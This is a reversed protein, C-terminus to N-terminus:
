GFGELPRISQENNLGTVDSIQSGTVPQPGIVTGSSVRVDRVHLPLACPPVAWVETFRNVGNNSYSHQVPEGPRLRRPVLQVRLNGNVIPLTLNPRYIRATELWSAIRHSSCPETSAREMRSTSFTRSTTLAPQAPAISPVGFAAMLAM